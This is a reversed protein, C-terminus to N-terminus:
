SSARVDRCGAARAWALLRRGADPEGGNARAAAHYLENWRDLRPSQPHWIFGGYDGDGAAVLGGPRCVRVMESLAAVPDAIHQLVQHAHV